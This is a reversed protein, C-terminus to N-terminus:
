DKDEIMAFMIEGEAVIKGDVTAKAWMKGINGKIGLNEAELILQDGPTVPRRLKLRNVGALYPTIKRNGRGHLIVVAGLQAMAEVILVGPMIPKEPFHGLFQIENFTVNKLGKGRKGEEMELIRDVLLFPYRHPLINKIENIEMM